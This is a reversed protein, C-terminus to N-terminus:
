LEKKLSAYVAYAGGIAAGAAIAYLGYEGIYSLADCSDDVFFGKERMLNLARGNIGAAAGMMIASLGTIAGTARLMIETNKDLNENNSECVCKVM